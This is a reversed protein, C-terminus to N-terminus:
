RLSEDYRVKVGPGVYLTLQDTCTVVPEGPPPKITIDVALRDRGGAGDDPESHTTVDLDDGVPLNCNFRSFRIFPRRLGNGDPVADAAQDVSVFDVRPRYHLTIRDTEVPLQQYPYNRQHRVGFAGSALIGGLVCAILLPIAGAVFLLRSRRGSQAPAPRGADDSIELPEAM